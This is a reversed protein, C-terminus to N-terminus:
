QGYRRAISEQSAGSRFDDLITQLTFSDDLSGNYYQVANSLDVYTSIENLIYQMAPWLHIYQDPGDIRKVMLKLIKVTMELWNWPKLHQPLVKAFLDRYRENDEVLLKRTLEIFSDVTWYRRLEQYEELSPLYDVPVALGDRGTRRMRVRDQPSAFHSIHALIEPPLNAGGTYTEVQNGM